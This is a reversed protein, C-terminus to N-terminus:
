KFEKNFKFIIQLDKFSPSGNGMYFKLMRELLEKEDEERFVIADCDKERERLSDKYRLILEKVYDCSFQKTTDDSMQRCVCRHGYLLVEEVVYEENIFLFCKGILEEM